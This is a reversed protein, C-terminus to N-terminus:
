YRWCYGRNYYYTSGYEKVKSNGETDSLSSSDKYGYYNYHPRRFAHGFGCGTMTILLFLMLCIKISNLDKEELMIFCQSYGIHESSPKKIGVAVLATVVELAM